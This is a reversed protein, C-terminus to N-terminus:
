ITLPLSEMNGPIKPNKALYSESRVFDECMIPGIEVLHQQNTGWCVENSRMKGLSELAPKPNEGDRKHSGHATLVYARSVGRLRDNQEKSFGM